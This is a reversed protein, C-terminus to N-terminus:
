GVKVFYDDSYKAHAYVVTGMVKMKCYNLQETVYDHKESVQDNKYVSDSILDDNQCYNM